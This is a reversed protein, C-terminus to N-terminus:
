CWWCITKINILTFKSYSRPGIFGHTVFRKQLWCSLKSRYPALQCDNPLNAVLATSANNHVDLIPNKANRRNTQLAQTGIREVSKLPVEFASAFALETAAFIKRHDCFAFCSKTKALKQNPTQLCSIQRSNLNEHYLRRQIVHWVGGWM